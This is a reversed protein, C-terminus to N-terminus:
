ALDIHVHATFSVARMLRPTFHEFADSVITILAFLLLSTTLLFVTLKGEVHRQRIVELCRVFLVFYIGTLM